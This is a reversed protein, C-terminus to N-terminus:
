NNKKGSFFFFDFVFLLHSPFKSSVITALVKKGYKASIVVEAVMCLWVRIVSKYQLIAGGSVELTLVLTEEKGYRVTVSLLIPLDHTQTQTQTQTQVLVTTLSDLFTPIVDM